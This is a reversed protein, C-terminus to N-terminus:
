LTLLINFYIKLKNKCIDGCPGLSRICELIHQIQDAGCEGTDHNAQPDVFVQFQLLQPHSNM